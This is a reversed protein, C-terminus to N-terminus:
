LARRAEQRATRAAELASRTEALRQKATALGDLIEARRIRADALALEASNRDDTAKRHRDVLDEM